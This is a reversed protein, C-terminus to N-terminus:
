FDDVGNERCHDPFDEVLDLTETINLKVKFMELSPFHEM